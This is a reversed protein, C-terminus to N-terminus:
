GDLSRYYGTEQKHKSDLMLEEEGDSSYSKIRSGVETEELLTFAILIIAQAFSISSAVVMTWQFGIHEDLIGALTPGITAGLYFMCSFISAVVANTSNDAVGKDRIIQVLQPVLQVFFWAWSFGNILM